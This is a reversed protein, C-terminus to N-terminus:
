FLGACCVQFWFLGYLWVCWHAPWHPFNVIHGSGRAILDPLLAQCVNVTGFYNIEMTWHFIQLDLTEAYGPRAVGACNVVLDPLGYDSKLQDLAQHLAHEDTVDASLAGLKQNANLRQQNIKEIAADLKQQDRALIVVSAGEAFLQQALALGIGSSGGTILVLKHNLDKMKVGRVFQL